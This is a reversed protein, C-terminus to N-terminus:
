KTVKSPWIPVGSILKSYSTLRWSRNHTNELIVEDVFNLFFPAKVIPTYPTLPNWIWGGNLEFFLFFQSLKAYIKSAM